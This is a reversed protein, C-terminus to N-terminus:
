VPVPPVGVRLATRPVSLLRGNAADFATRDRSEVPFRRVLFGEDEAVVGAPLHNTGWDHTHARCCTTLVEVAHGRSAFRAALQWAHLEAGGRLNRGFWPIVIAIRNM